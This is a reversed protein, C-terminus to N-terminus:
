SPVTILDRPFRSLIEIGDELILVNDIVRVGL